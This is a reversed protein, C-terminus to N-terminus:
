PCSNRSRRRWQPWYLARPVSADRDSAAVETSHDAHALGVADGFGDRAVEAFAHVRPRSCSCGRRETADKWTGLAKYGSRDTKWSRQTEIDIGLV